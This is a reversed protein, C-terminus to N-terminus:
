GCPVSARVAEAQAILDDAASAPIIKKNRLAKVQSIFSALKDCAGATNGNDLNKQARTLKKLLSNELGSPLGLAKVSDILDPITLVTYTVTVLGDGERVGTEFTTGEPGHGSGGGGGAFDNGGGGGYWGGGGAGGIGGADGGLGFQGPTAPAAATGGEDQTGGGGAVGCSAVGPGGSLGGGPGGHENGGSCSAAGTGGGGGAVLKRDTLATGGIRIDSAGGGGGSCFCGLSADGGGNFGGFGSVGQGGVNVQISAGTTVAITATARGGLGPAYDGFQVGGGMAGYLDFTAETVGAPVTWTQADGTYNFTDTTAAAPAAFALTALGVVALAARRVLRSRPGRAVQAGEALGLSGAAGYRADM